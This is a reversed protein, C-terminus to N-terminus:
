RTVSRRSSRVPAAGLPWSCACSGAARPHNTEVLGQGGALINLLCDLLKDLPKHRLVKQRIHVHEGIVAWVGLRQFHMGIAVLSARASYEISQEM